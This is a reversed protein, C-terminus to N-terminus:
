NEDSIPTHSGNTFVLKSGDPCLVELGDYSMRWETIMFRLYGDAGTSGPPSSINKYNLHLWVVGGGVLADYMTDYNNSLEPYNFYDITHNVSEKSIAM